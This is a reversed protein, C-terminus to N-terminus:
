LSRKSQVLGAKWLKCDSWKVEFFDNELKFRYLNGALQLIYRDLAEQFVCPAKLKGHM